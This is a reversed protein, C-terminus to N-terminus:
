KSGSPRIGYSLTTIGIRRLMRKEEETLETGLEAKARQELVALSSKYVETVTFIELERLRLGIAEAEKERLLNLLEMRRRRRLDGRQTQERATRGLPSGKDTVATIICVEGEAEEWISKSSVREYTGRKRHTSDNDYKRHHDREDEYRITAIVHTKSEYVIAMLRADDLLSPPGEFEIWPKFQVITENPTKVENLVARWDVFRIGTDGHARQDRRDREGIM